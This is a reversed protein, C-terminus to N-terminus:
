DKVIDVRQAYIEFTPIQFEPIEKGSEDYVRYGKLKRKGTRITGKVSVTMGFKYTNVVTEAMKDWCVIMINDYPLVTDYGKKRDRKVKLLFSTVPVKDPTHRLCIEETQITGLLSVVNM